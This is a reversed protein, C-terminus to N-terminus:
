KMEEEKVSIKGTVLDFITATGGKVKLEIAERPKASMLATKSM